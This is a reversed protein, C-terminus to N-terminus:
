KYDFICWSDSVKVKLTFFIWEPSEIPLLLIHTYTHPACLNIRRNKILNSKKQSKKKNLNKLLLLERTHNNGRTYAPNPSPRCHTPPYHLIPPPPPITYYFQPPASESHTWNMKPKSRTSRDADYTASRRKAMTKSTWFPPPADPRLGARARRKRRKQEM